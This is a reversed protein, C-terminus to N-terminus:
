QDPRIVMLLLMALLWFALALGWHVFMAFGITALSIAINALFWAHM